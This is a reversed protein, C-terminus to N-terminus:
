VEKQIKGLVLPGLMYLDLPPQINVGKEVQGSFGTYFSIKNLFKTLALM